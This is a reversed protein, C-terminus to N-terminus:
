NITEKILSNDAFFFTPRSPTSLPSLAYVVTFLYLASLSTSSVGHAYVDLSTYRSVPQSLSSDSEQTLPRFLFPVRRCFRRNTPTSVTSLALLASWVGCRVGAIWGKKSMRGDGSLGRSVSDSIDTGGDIFYHDEVLALSILCDYGKQEPGKGGRCNLRGIEDAFNCFKLTSNTPFLRNITAHIIMLKFHYPNQKKNERIQTLYYKVFM